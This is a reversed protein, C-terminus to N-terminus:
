DEPPVRVWCSPRVYKCKWSLFDCRISQEQEPYCGWRQPTVPPEWRPWLMSYAKGPCLWRGLTGSHGCKSVREMSGGPKELSTGFGWDPLWPGGLRGGATWDKRRTALAHPGQGGPPGIETGGEHGTGELMSGEAQPPPTLLGSAM